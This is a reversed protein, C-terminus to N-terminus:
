AVEPLINRWSVQMATVHNGSTKGLMKIMEGTQEIQYEMMKDIKRSLERTEKLFEEMWKPQENWNVPAAPADAGTLLFDVTVGYFDALLKLKGPRPKVPKEEQEYSYLTNINIGTADSIKYMELGRASRLNKLRDNVTM